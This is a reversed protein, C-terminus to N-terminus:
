IVKFSEEPELLGPQAGFHEVRGLCAACLPYYRLSDTTPDILGELKSRLRLYASRELDRAEFVSKQVRVAYEKLVKVVRYRRRDCSVDFAIVYRMADKGVPPKEALHRHDQNWLEASEGDLRRPLAHHLQLKM